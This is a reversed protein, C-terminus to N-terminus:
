PDGGGGGLGGQHSGWGLEPGWQDGGYEELPGRCGGSGGEACQEGWMGEQVRGLSVAAGWLGGLCGSERVTCGSGGMFVRLAVGLM